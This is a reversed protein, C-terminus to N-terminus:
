NRQLVKLKGELAWKPGPGATMKHCLQWKTAHGRNRGAMPAMNHPFPVSGFFPPDPLQAHAAGLFLPPCTGKTIRRPEPSPKPEAVVRELCLGPAHPRHVELFCLFAHM